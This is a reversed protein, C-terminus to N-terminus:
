NQSKSNIIQYTAYASVAQYIKGSKSVYRTSSFDTASSGTTKYNSFDVQLIGYDVTKDFMNKTGPDNLQDAQILAIMKTIFGSSNDIYYVIKKYPFGPNFDITIVDQTKSKVIATSSYQNDYIVSDIMALPNASKVTAANAIYILKDDNFVTVVESDNSISETNELRYWYQGRNMKFSGQVSDLYKAPAAINAYRYKVDFSVYGTDHYKQSLMQLRNVVEQRQDAQSKGSLCFVQFFIIFFLVRIGPLFHFYKTKM